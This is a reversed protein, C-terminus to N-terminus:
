SDHQTQESKKRECLGVVHASGLRVDGRAAAGDIIDAAAGTAVAGSAVVPQSDVGVTAHDGDAEHGHVDCFGVCQVDIVSRVGVIVGNRQHDTGCSGVPHVVAVLNLQAVLLGGGGDLVGGACQGQVEDGCGVGCATVSEFQEDGAGLWALADVGVDVEGVAHGGRVEVGVEVVPVVIDVETGIIGDVEDAVAGIGVVVEAVM